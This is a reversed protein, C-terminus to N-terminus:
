SASADGAAGLFIEASVLIHEIGSGEPTQMEQGM